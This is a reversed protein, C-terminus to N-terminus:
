KAVRKLAAKLDILATRTGLVYLRCSDVAGPIPTIGGPAPGPILKSEDSIGCLKTLFEAADVPRGKVMIPVFPVLAETVADTTFVVAFHAPPCTPCDPPVHTDAVYGVTKRGAKIAYLYGESLPEIRDANPYTKRATELLGAQEQKGSTRAIESMLPILQKVVTDEGSVVMPPNSEATIFAEVAEMEKVGSAKELERMRQYNAADAYDHMVVVSCPFNEMALRTVERLRAGDTEKSSFYIAASIGTGDNPRPAPAQAPKEGGCAGALILLILCLRKLM